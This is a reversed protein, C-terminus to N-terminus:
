QVRLIPASDLEIFDSTMYVFFIYVMCSHLPRIKEPIKFSSFNIPQEDIPFDRLHM